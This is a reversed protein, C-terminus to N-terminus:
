EGIIKGPNLINNTGGRGQHTQDFTAMMAKRASPLPILKLTIESIVGLTGESGM